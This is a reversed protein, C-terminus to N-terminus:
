VVEPDGVIDDDKKERARKEREDREDQMIKLALMESFPKTMIHEREYDRMAKKEDNVSEGIDQQAEELTEFEIIKGPDYPSSRKYGYHWIFWGKRQPRFWQKGYGDTFEIIRYKHIKAM